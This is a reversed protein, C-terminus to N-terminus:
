CHIPVQQMGGSTEVDITHVTAPVGVTISASQWTVVMACVAGQMAPPEYQQAILYRSGSAGSSPVLRVRHCSDSSMLEGRVFVGGTALRNASLHRADTGSGLLLASVVSVLAILDARM